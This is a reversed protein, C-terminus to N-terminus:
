KRFGVDDLVVVGAPICDFIFRVTTLSSADFVPDAGRLGNPTERDQSKGKTNVHSKEKNDEPLNKMLQPLEADLPQLFTRKHDFIM